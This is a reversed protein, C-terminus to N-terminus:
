QLALKILFYGVAVALLIYGITRYFGLRAAITEPSGSPKFFWQPRIALLLGILLPIAVDIYGM